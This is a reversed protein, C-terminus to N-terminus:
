LDLRVWRAVALHAFSRGYWVGVYVDGTLRFRGPTERQIAGRQADDFFSLVYSNRQDTTVMLATFPENGRVSVVGEVEIRNGSVAEPLRSMGCGGLFVGFYITLAAAGTVFWGDSRVYSSASLSM